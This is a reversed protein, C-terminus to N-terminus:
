AAVYGMSMWPIEHVYEDTVRFAQRTHESVDARLGELRCIADSLRDELDSRVAAYGEATSGAARQMLAEADDMVTKSDEVLKDRTPRSAAGDHALQTQANM